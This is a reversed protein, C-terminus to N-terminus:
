FNMVPELAQREAEFRAIVQRSDMGPKILKLAVRRRVPETQEAVYVIGCGGEGLKELLKYRGIMQGVASDLQGAPERVIAPNLCVEATELVGDTQAHAELLVDLRVRLPADGACAQDLFDARASGAELALAQRFLAEERQSTDSV